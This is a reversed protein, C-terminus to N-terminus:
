YYADTDVNNIDRHVFKQLLKKDGESLNTQLLEKWTILRWDRYDFGPCCAESMLAFREGNKTEEVDTDIIAAIWCHKPVILQFGHGKKNFKPGLTTTFLTNLIPDVIYYKLGTGFHFYHVIDCGAQHLSMIMSDKERQLWYISSMLNRKKDGKSSNFIWGNEDTKGKSKMPDSCGSKYTTRFYGGEPHQILNLASILM